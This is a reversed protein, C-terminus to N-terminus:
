DLYEARTVEEPHRTEKMWAAAVSWPDDKWARLRLSKWTQDWVWMSNQGKPYLYRCLAHRWNPTSLLLVRAEINKEKLAETMVIAQPLCDNGYHFPLGKAPPHVACSALCCAVLINLLLKM